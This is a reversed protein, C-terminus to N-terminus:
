LLGSDYEKQGFSKILMKRLTVRNEDTFLHHTKNGVQIELHGPNKCILILIGSLDLERFRSTAWSLFFQERSEKDKVENEKGVPVHAYTEVVVDRGDRKEIESLIENAQKITEPKFFSGGDRVRAKGASELLDREQGSAGPTQWGLMSIA